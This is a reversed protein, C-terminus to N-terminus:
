SVNYKNKMDSITISRYNNESLFLLIKELVAVTMASTDHLLVVSGAQIKPAVRQFIKEVGDEFTDFSRIDWGISEKGTSQIAKAIAPNTIGFPPRYLRTYVGIKQLVEDCKEIEEKMKQASFFGMSSSHTHSHNGIEHGFFVIKQAINPNKEVRNGICFFTAKQHYKELLHLIQLTYLTVGDDFTLCIVKEQLGDKRCFSNVFYNWRM